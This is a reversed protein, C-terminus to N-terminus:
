GGAARRPPVRLLTAIGAAALFALVAAGLIPAAYSGTADFAAGTLPPGFLTGVGAATYLCGIIGAVSRAGFLEMVASPFTAVFGGYFIGFGIAMLSLAAAGTSAWWLLLMLAMGLYMLALSAMTGLRHAIGGIAFRGILSGLGILSVLLVAFSEPHGADVAYPGIHVLPVFCGFGSLVLTGYLVWFNRSGLAARLPVGDTARGHGAPRNRIAAAAAGGLVLTCGALALYAGRWGLTDIWWATLPPALLNGAGIGSVAIGSALVRRKEFWPQVAGVAPVYTLGIGIGLGVSYTAYLVGISRAYSAAVLGAVLFAVGALAVRRTGYRDALMGGPAGLLFYLFACLSFVLSVHARSAAFESQFARFFAAFSYAAGFGVFMLTFACLVVV